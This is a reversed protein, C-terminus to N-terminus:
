RVYRLFRWRFLAVEKFTRRNTGEDQDEKLAMGHPLYGYELGIVFVVKFELGKAAHITMLSVKDLTESNDKNNMLSMEELFSELNDFENALKILETTNSIRDFYEEESASIKELYKKINFNNVVNSLIVAPPKNNNEYIFKLVDNFVKNAKNSISNYNICTQMKDVISNGKLQLLENITVEGIGRRPAKILREFTVQDFQNNLFLLYSMLDKIERREFFEVNGIIQYPIKLKVLEQEVARSMHKVRYLVAIESYKYIKNKVYRKCANAINKAEQKNNLFKVILPKRIDEIESFCNKHIQFKNNKILSNSTKIISKGSRYNQELLIIKSNKYHKEFEIFYQPDAMRWLYISQYDDGAVTLKPQNNVLIKFIENQIFNLM